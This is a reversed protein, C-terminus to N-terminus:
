WIIPVGYAALRRDSSALALGEVLAQAVLMRDFPDRHIAPLEAARLAHAMTIPLETAHLDVLVNHVFDAVGVPLSLRGITSKIGLEWPTVSSVVVENEPAALAYRVAATLTGARLGTRVVVNSDLLIKM